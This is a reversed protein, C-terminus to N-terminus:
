ARWVTEDMQPECCVDGPSDVSRSIYVELVQQCDRQTRMLIALRDYGVRLITVRYEGSDPLALSAVGASDSTAYPLGSGPAKTREVLAHASYIPSDPQDVDRVLIKLGVGTAWRRFSVSVVTAPAIEAPPAPAQAVAKDPSALTAAGLLTLVSLRPVKLRFLQDDSGM